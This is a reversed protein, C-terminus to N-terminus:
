QPTCGPCPQSQLVVGSKPCAWRLKRFSSLSYLRPSTSGSVFSVSGLDRMGVGSGDAGGPPVGLGSEGWGLREDFWESVRPLVLVPVCLACLLGGLLAMDDADAADGVPM